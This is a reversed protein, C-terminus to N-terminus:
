IVVNILVLWCFLIVSKLSDLFYFLFFSLSWEREVTIKLSKIPYIEDLDIGLKHWNLSELKVHIIGDYEHFYFYGSTTFIYLTDDEDLFGDCEEIPPFEVTRTVSEIFKM